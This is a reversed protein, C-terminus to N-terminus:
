DHTYDIIRDKIFDTIDDISNDPNLDIYDELDKIVHKIRVDQQVLGDLYERVSNIFGIQDGISSSAILDIQNCRDSTDGDGMRALQERMYARDTLKGEATKSYPSDNAKGESRQLRSRLRPDMAIKLSNAMALTDGSSEDIPEEFAPYKTQLEAQIKDAREATDPDMLKRVEENQTLTLLNQLLQKWSKQASPKQNDIINPTTRSMLNFFKPVAQNIFKKIVTSKLQEITADKPSIIKEHEKGDEGLYTERIKLAEGNVNVYEELAARDFLMDDWNNPDMLLALTNLAAYDQTNFGSPKGTKILNDLIALHQHIPNKIFRQGVSTAYMPGAFSAKDKFGSSTMARGITTSLNALGVGDLGYQEYKGEYIGSLMGYVGNIPDAIPMDWNQLIEKMAPTDHKYIRGIFNGQQDVADFYYEKKGNILEYKDYAAPTLQDPYYYLLEGQFKETRKVGNKDIFELRENTKPDVAFGDDDNYFGLAMNRFNRKNYGYKSFAYNVYSKRAAENKASKSIVEGLVTLEGKKGLAGGAGVIYHKYDYERQERTRPDKTTPAAYRNRFKDYEGMVWDEDAFADNQEVLNARYLDLYNKGGTAQLRKDELTSNHYDGYNGMVHAANKTATQAELAVDMARKASRSSATTGLLRSGSKYEDNYAPDYKRKGIVRNQAYIEARSARVKNENEIDLARSRNRKDLYRQLSASPLNSNNIRRLRALEHRQALNARIGEQPKNALNSLKSSVAGLVTGSMKMLGIALILPLVQVAMGVILMFASGSNLASAILAWGALKAAGFLFSFMPYFIIMSIFIEKWKNFWKETNPLLYLVFAAPAIMVLITVLAQRLGLTVLGILVSVLAGLLAALLPWIFHIIAIGGVAGGGILAATLATWNVDASSGFGGANIAQSQIGDFLGRISAGLVNSLDVALACIIYSLNVLVAAIILKPLAKKIGYNSIGLGTIQSYIVILLFIVFLINTIDRMIQWVQYIPSSDEFSVPKVVLLKELQSYISDVAKGLASTANCVLWGLGPVEDYCTQTKDTNESATSVETTETVESSTPEAYAPEALIPSAALGLIGMIAFLVGFITNRIRQKLSKKCM